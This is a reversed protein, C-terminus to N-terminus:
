LILRASHKCFIVERPFIKRNVSEFCWGREWANKPDHYANLWSKDNRFILQGAQHLSCVPICSETAFIFRQFDGDISRDRKELACDLLQLM